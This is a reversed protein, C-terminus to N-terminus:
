GKMSGSRSTKMSSVPALVLILRSQTTPRQAALAQQGGNWETMPLGRCEDGGQTAGAQGGGHHEIPRHVAPGEEGVDLLDQCWRELAAVDDHYIVQWGLLGLIDALDDRGSAGLEEQQRRATGVEIRNLHSEGLELDRKPLARLSRDVPQLTVDSCKEIM